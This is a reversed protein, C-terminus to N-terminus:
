ALVLFFELSDLLTLAAALDPAVEVPLGRRGLFDVLIAAVDADRGVLLVKARPQAFPPTDEEDEALGVVADALARSLPDEAPTAAAHDPEEDPSVAPEARVEPAVEFPGGAREAAGDRQDAEGKAGFFSVRGKGRRKSELMAQDAGNLLAKVGNVELERGTLCHVGISVTFPVLRGAVSEELLRLIRRALAGAGAATTSPLVICFEDGYLRSALDLDRRITGEIVKGIRALVENGVEHGHGDNIAKFDDVDIMLAALPQEYRVARKVERAVREVFFDRYFLGSLTDIRIVEGLRRLTERVDDLLRLASHGRGAEPDDPGDTDAAGLTDADDAASQRRDSTSPAPAVAAGHPAGGGLRRLLALLGEAEVPKAVVADVAEAFGAAGPGCEGGAALLLTLVGHSRALAVCAAAEDARLWRDVLVASPRAAELAARLGALGTAHRVGIGESRLREELGDPIGGFCSVVLLEVGSFM